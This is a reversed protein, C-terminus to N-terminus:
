EAEPDPDVLRYAEVTRRAYPEVSASPAALTMDAVYQAAEEVFRSLSLGRIHAARRLRAADYNLLEIEFRTKGIPM